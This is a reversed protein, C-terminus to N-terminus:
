LGFLYFVIMVAALALHLFFPIKWSHRAEAQVVFHGYLPIILGIVALVFVLIGLGADILSLGGGTVMTKILLYILLGAAPILLALSAQMYTISQWRKKLKDAWNM